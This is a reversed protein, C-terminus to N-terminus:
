GTAPGRAFRRQGHARLGGGAMAFLLWTWGMAGGLSTSGPESAQVRKVPPDPQEPPAIPPPAVPRTDAVWTQFAMDRVCQDTAHDTGYFCWTAGVPYDGPSEGQWAYNCPYAADTRVAIGLVDGAVVPEADAGFDVPVLETGSAPVEDPTLAAGTMVLDGPVGAETRVVDVYLNGVPTCRHHSVAVDVRTLWGTKGVTFTQAVFHRAAGENPNADHIELGGDLNLLPNAQDIVTEAAVPGSVTTVVAALLGTAVSHRM